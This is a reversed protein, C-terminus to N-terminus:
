RASCSSGAPVCNALCSTGATCNVLRGSCGPCLVCCLSRLCGLRRVTGAGRSAPWTATHCPRSCPWARVQGILKLFSLYLEVEFRGRPAMVNVNDFSAVADVGAGADVTHENLADLLVQSCIPTQRVVRLLVCIQLPPCLFQRM